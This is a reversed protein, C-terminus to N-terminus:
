TKSTNTDNSNNKSRLWAIFSTFTPEIGNTVIEEVIVTGDECYSVPKCFGTNVPWKECDAIYEELINLLEKQM